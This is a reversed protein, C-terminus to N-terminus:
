TQSAIERWRILYYALVAWPLLYGALVVLSLVLQALPINFGEAVYNTLSFRDVDPLLNTLGQILLRFGKDSWLVLNKVASNEIPSNLSRGFIRTAAEMPGGGFNTGLAVSQIFETFMGGVYFVCTILLAIVGSLYTSLAVALGCVLVLRYWLGLAGKFFNIGFWLTELGQSPDDQLFYLDYRAMGVYGASSNNRVRVTLVPPKKGSTASSPGQKLANKFLGGPLDIAQTHYDLVNKGPVEFYGYKEALENEAEKLKDPNNRAEALKRRYELEDGRKFNHTTFVFECSLNQGETGVHLRYVDFSFECRVVPRSALVAPATPFTFVAHQPQKGPLPGAIYSRYTWERGVSEAKSSDGTGEFALLGYLPDRARLSEAAAAPDVNRLVYLLSVGTMVLLVVTLLGTFGLFRGLVVEFREVPKTLITHITQQKIDTPISFSGLILASLLLLPGMAYYVINVYTQVQQEPKYPVYWNAFLYVLLLIAFVWPVRRRLAEKFSLRAIAWIRRGRLQSLNLLFGLSAAVIACLGGASQILLARNIAEVVSQPLEGKDPIAPLRMRLTIGVAYLVVASFLLALFARPQWAPTGKWDGRFLRLFSLILWFALLLGALIGAVIGYAQITRSELIAGLGVGAAACVLLGAFLLPQWLPVRKWDLAGCGM